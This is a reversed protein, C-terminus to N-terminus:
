FTNLGMKCLQESISEPTDIHSFYNIVPIKTKEIIQDFLFSCESIQEPKLLKEKEKICRDLIIHNPAQAYIVITYEFRSMAELDILEFQKDTISCGDRWLKSYVYEGLHARDIVTPVRINSFMEMYENFPNDTKPKSCHIYDLSFVEQLHRALTSKGTNDPGEIIILM